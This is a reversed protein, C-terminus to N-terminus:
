KFKLNIEKGNEVYDTIYKELEEKKIMHPNSVVAKVENCSWQLNEINSSGGLLSIIRRAFHPEPLHPLLRRMAKAVKEVNLGAIIEVGESKKFIGSVLKEIEKINIRNYDEIKVRLRTSCWDIDRINNKGGLLPILTEGPIIDEDELEGSHGESLNKEVEEGLFAVGPGIVVQVLIGKKIIGPVLKKIEEDDVKESNIVRLKLRTACWQISEINETGGLLRLLDNVLDGHSRLEPLLKGFEEAVIEVGPGVIYKVKESKVIVGSILKKIKNTKVRDAHRVYVTLRTSCWDYSRVNESGGASDLIEAAIERYCSLDCEKQDKSDKGLSNFVNKLFGM